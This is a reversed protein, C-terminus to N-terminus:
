NNNLVAVLPASLLSPAVQVFNRFLRRGESDGVVVVDNAYIDPDPYAGKRIAELSYLAALRQDGVTRFIVVERRKAFETLGEATAVARMLTMRGIVPYLGPKKVEGDVTVVQSVTEELNVTVQPNKVYGRLREEIVEALEGPTKGAADVVGALPMSIRGSADAQIEQDLEEIGFVDIKLKDFPGILYPRDLASLDAATPPPLTTGSVVHLGPGEVLAPGGSCAAAGFLAVPALFAAFKM